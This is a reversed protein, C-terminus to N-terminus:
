ERPEEKVVQFRLPSAVVRGHAKQARELEGRLAALERLREAQERSPAGEADRVLSDIDQKERMLRRKRLELATSDLDARLRDPPEDAHQAALAQVTAWTPALEAPAAGQGGACLWRWLGRCEPRHFDNDALGTGIAGLTMLALAYEEVQDPRQEVTNPQAVARRTAPRTLEAIASEPVGVVAALRQVYHAREIPDVLDRLAPVLEEVAATKGQPSALDHQYPLREFLFDLVPLAAAVLERWQTPSARILEDPDKGDPLQAVRLTCRATAQYRIRGQRTPVPVHSGLAERAVVLSRLTAADGAADPDLAFVIEDAIRGLPALQREGVATGLAAVVNRFGAQHAVVADLYGEVIVARRDTRITDRAQDLAYLVSGKEFLETQPSNLYKPIGDPTLTRGGFGITRGQTDRIPFILRHRFRDRLVGSGEDREVALGAALLDQPTFGAGALHERLAAGGDPAYGLTFRECTDRTVGRGEVYRRAPQGAPQQMLLAHYYLAAAENARLLRDRAEERAPDAHTELQVGARAALDRLAEAFELNDRQMVFSFADGGASCGFCKWTQTEPFVYFSPTKESHFPCLARYSRGARQLAVTSGILDVLDVRAKIEEVPSAAM